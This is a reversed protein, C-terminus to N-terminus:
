QWVSVIVTVVALKILWDGAHIAALKWPAREHLMGGAWLMLPFGIWLATGLVLGGAWEDTGTQSALGAVVVVVLLTRLVEVGVTWPAPQEGSAAADSVTALQGGLMVYYTASLVVAVMTAVLIALLNVEPM